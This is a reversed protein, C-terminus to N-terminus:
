QQSSKVDKKNQKSNAKDFATSLWDITGKELVAFTEKPVDKKISYLDKLFSMAKCKEDWSIEKQKVKSSNNIAPSDSGTQSFGSDELAIPRDDIVVESSKRSHTESSTSPIKKKEEKTIEKTEVEPIKPEKINHLDETSDVRNWNTERVKSTVSISTSRKKTNPDKDKDSVKSEKKEKKLSNSINKRVVEPSEQAEEFPNSSGQLLDPTDQAKKRFLISM